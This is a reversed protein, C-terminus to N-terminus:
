DFSLLRNFSKYCYSSMRKPFLFFLFSTLIVIRIPLILRPQLHTGSSRPILIFLPLIFVDPLSFLVPHRHPHHHIRSLSLILHPRTPPNILQHNHPHRHHFSLSSSSSPSTYTHPHPQLHNHPDCGLHSSLSSLYSSHSFSTLTLIPILVFVPFFVLTIILIHLILISLSNKFSHILSHSSAPSLM